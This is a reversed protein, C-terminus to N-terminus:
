ILIWIASSTAVSWDPFVLLDVSIIKYLVNLFAAFASLSSVSILRSSFDNKPFVLIWLCNMSFTINTFLIGEFTYSADASSYTSLVAHSTDSCCSLDISPQYSSFGFPVTFTYIPLLSSINPFTSELQNNADIPVDYVTVAVSVM